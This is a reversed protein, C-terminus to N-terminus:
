APKRKSTFKTARESRLRAFFDKLMASSEDACVGAIPKVHHNLRTDELLNGLSGAFGAKPDMAGYVVRALRANVIAGACMACPELTVVLTCADLRWDRIKKAAELIAIHEAHALPNRDAERTNFSQGVVRATATEYVLAGVPVEGVKAAKAALALAKQMMARDLPTAHTADLPQPVRQKLRLYFTGSM